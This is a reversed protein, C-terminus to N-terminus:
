RPLGAMTNMMLEILTETDNESLFRALEQECLEARAEADEFTAGHIRFGDYADEVISELSSEFNFDYTFNMLWYEELSEFYFNKAHYLHEYKVLVGDLIEVAKQVSLCAEEIEGKSVAWLDNETKGADAEFDFDFGLDIYQDIGDRGWMLAVHQRAKQIISETPM